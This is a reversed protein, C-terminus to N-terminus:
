RRVVRVRVKDTTSGGDGDTVTVRVVYLGPRRFVHTVRSGRKTRGAIRWTAKLRDRGPDSARVFFRVRKGRRVRRDRGANVRPPANRVRATASSSACGGASDCVRLVVARTTPGDLHLASFSTTQGSVEFAGNGDLDWSYSLAQGEPDTGSATLLVSGGERVSYGNAGGAVATPSGNVVLVRRYAVRTGDPGSVQFGVTFAGGSPFIPGASPAPAPTDDYDGDGDLDWGPTNLPGIGPPQFWSAELRVPQGSHAPTVVSFSAWAHRQMVWQNLSGGLRAYIGPYEPDACGLGWSTVGVLVFVGGSPVMLPGGSDGQCTDTAGNGACVMTSPDFASGYLGCDNDSRIPAIAELLTNSVPGGPSTTGWGVITATTGPAWIANEDSRVIRLPTYPAARDLTLMALDNLHLTGDYSSHVEVNTVGFVDMSPGVEISNLGVLFASAPYPAELDDVVCHAATLFHRADLLTGGCFAFGPGTDIQLYGQAPYERPSAAQGGVIRDGNGSGMATPAAVLLVIAAVASILRHRNM